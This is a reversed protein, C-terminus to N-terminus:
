SVAATTATTPRTKRMETKIRENAAELYGNLIRHFSKESTFISLFKIIPITDNTIKATRPAKEVDPPIPVPIRKANRNKSQPATM